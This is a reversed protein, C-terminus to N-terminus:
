YVLTATFIKLQAGLNVDISYILNMIIYNESNGWRLTLISIEPHDWQSFLTRGEEDKGPSM